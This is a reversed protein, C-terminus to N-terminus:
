GRRLKAEDCTRLQHMFASRTMGGTQIQNVFYNVGGEDGERRLVTQYATLVFTRLDGYQFILAAERAEEDRPTSVKTAIADFLWGDVVNLTKLEFGTEHLHNKLSIKTFSTYHYDGSYAQTGFMCQILHDQREATQNEPNSFLSALDILSPARINITGGAKLVRNWTCLVLRTDTRALHELVDNALIYDFSENPFDALTTVDAVVDPKHWVHLDVNVFDKRYDFGCGLYLQKSARSFDFETASAPVVTSALPSVTSM